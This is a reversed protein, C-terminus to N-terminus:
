IAWFVHACPHPAHIGCQAYHHSRNPPFFRELAAQLPGVLHTGEALSLEELHHHLHHENCGQLHQAVENRSCNKVRQLM